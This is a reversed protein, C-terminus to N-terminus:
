RGPPLAGQERLRRLWGNITHRPVAYHEAVANISGSRRYVAALDAPMRRYARRTATTTGSKKTATSAGSRGRGTTATGAAAATRGAPQRRRGTPGASRSRAERGTDIAGVTPQTVAPLATDAPPAALSVARLLLGYDIDPLRGAPLGAGAHVHVDTVVAEGATAELRLTTTTASDDPTITITYATMAM